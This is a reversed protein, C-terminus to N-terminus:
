LTSSPLITAMGECTVHSEVVADIDYHALADCVSRLLAAPNEAGAVRVVKDPRDPRSPAGPTSVHYRHSMPPLGAEGIDTFSWALAWRTTKGHTFAVFRVNTIHNHKLTKLLPYLSAKRGVLSTYWTVRERLVLSDRIIRDVFAVEGGEVVVEHAAGTNVGVPGTRREHTANLEAASGYFPPNCMCFDFRAGDDLVGALVNDADDVHQVTM